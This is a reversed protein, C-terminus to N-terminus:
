LVMKKYRFRGYFFDRTKIVKRTKKDIWFESWQQKNHNIKLIWCDFNKNNFTIVEERVKKYTYYKAPTKSGPHYFNIVFENYKDLRLMGLTELDLEWNFALETNPISFAKSNHKTTDKHSYMKNEDFLFFKRTENKDEKKTSRILISESIPKFYENVNIIYKHNKKANQRLWNMQYSNKKNKYINRDWIEVNYKPSDPKNQFYVLYTTKGLNLHKLQLNRNKVNVTDTQAYISTTIILVFIVQIIKLNKM